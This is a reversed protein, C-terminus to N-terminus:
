CWCCWYWPTLVRAVTRLGRCLPERRAVVSVPRSCRPSVQGPLLQGKYTITQSSLSNVYFKERLLPSEDAEKAVIRHLRYLEREFDRNSYGSNNVVFVQETIPETAIAATGLDAGAESGDVPATRWGVVKMGRVLASREFIRKAEAVLADDDKGLFINGM